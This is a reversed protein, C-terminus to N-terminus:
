LRSNPQGPDGVGLIMAAAAKAEKEALWQDFQKHYASLREKARAEIQSSLDPLDLKQQIQLMIEDFGVIPVLKGSHREVVAKVKEEPESGVRFCWFIGGRIPELTTLFNM